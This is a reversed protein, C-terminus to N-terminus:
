GIRYLYSVLIDRFDKSLSESDSARYFKGETIEAIAELLEPNVQSEVQQYLRQGSFQDVMNSPQWSQEESGVLIPFVPVGKERSLEAVQRPAM